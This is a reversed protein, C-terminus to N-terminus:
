RPTEKTPVDPKTTAYTYVARLCNQCMELEKSIEERWRYDSGNRPARFSATGLELDEPRYHNIDPVWQKGCRDCEKKTAM